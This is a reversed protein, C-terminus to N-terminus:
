VDCGWADLTAGPFLLLGGFGYNGGAAGKLELLPLNPMISRFGVEVAVRFVLRWTSALSRCSGGPVSDAKSTSARALARSALSLVDDIQSYALGIELCGAMDHFCGALRQAVADHSYGPWRCGVPERLRRRGVEMLAVPRLRDLGHPPPAPRLTVINKAMSINPSGPASIM